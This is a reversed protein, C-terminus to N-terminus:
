CIGVKSPTAKQLSFYDQGGGTPVKKCKLTNLKNKLLDITRQEGINTQNAQLSINRSQPIAPMKESTPNSQIRALKGVRSREKELYTKEFTLDGGQASKVGYQLLNLPFENHESVTNKPIGFNRELHLTLSEKDKRKIKQPKM